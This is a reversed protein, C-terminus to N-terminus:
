IGGTGFELLQGCSVSACVERLYSDAGKEADTFSSERKYGFQLTLTCLSNDDSIAIM